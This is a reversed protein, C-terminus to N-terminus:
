IWKFYELQKTWFIESDELMVIRDEAWMNALMASSVIKRKKPTNVIVPVSTDPSGIWSYVKNCKQVVDLM